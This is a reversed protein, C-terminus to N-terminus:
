RHLAFHLEEVLVTSETEDGPFAALVDEHVDGVELGLSGRQRLTLGNLELDARTALALFGLVDPGDSGIARSSGGFGDAGGPRARSCIPSGPHVHGSHHDHRQGATAGTGPSAGKAVLSATM